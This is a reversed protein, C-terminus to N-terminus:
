SCCSLRSEPETRYRPFYGLLRVFISRRDVCKPCVMRSQDPYRLGCRPCVEETSGEAYDEDTLEEGKKLKSALRALLSFSKLRSNSFRCLIRQSDDSTITLLGSTVLNEAKIDEFSEYSVSEVAGDVSVLLLEDDTALVWREEYRRTLSLDSTGAARITCEGMGGSHLFERPKPPVEVDPM